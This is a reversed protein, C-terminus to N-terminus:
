TQYLTCFRESFDFPNLNVAVGDAFLCALNTLTGGIGPPLMVGLHRSTGSTDFIHRIGSSLLLGLVLIRRGTFTAFGRAGDVLAVAGGMEYLKKALVYALNEETSQSHVPKGM